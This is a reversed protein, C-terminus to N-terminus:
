TPTAPLSRRTSETWTGDRWTTPSTRSGTSLELTTPERGENAARIQAATWLEYAAVHTMPDKVSWGGPPVPATITSEPVQNVLSAWVERGERMRELLGIKSSDAATKEPMM